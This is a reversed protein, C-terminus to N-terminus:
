LACDHEYAHIRGLLLAVQMPWRYISFKESSTQLVLGRILVEGFFFFVVVFVARMHIPVLETFNSAVHYLARGSELEPTATRCRPTTPSSAAGTARDGDRLTVASAIAHVRQLGRRLEGRGYMFHAPAQGHGTCHTAVFPWSPRALLSCHLALFFLFLFFHSRLARACVCVFDLATRAGHAPRV